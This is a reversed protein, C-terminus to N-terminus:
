HLDEDNGWGGLSTKYLYLVKTIEKDKSRSGNALTSTYVAKVKIPYVHTGYTVKSQHAESIFNGGRTISITTVLCGKIHAKMEKEMVNKVSANSPGDGSAFLAVLFALIVLAILSIAGIGLSKFPNM